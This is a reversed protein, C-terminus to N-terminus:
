DLHVWYMECLQTTNAIWDRLVFTHQIFCQAALSLTKHFCLRVALESNIHHTYTFFWWRFLKLVQHQSIACCFNCFVFGLEAFACGRRFARVLPSQVRGAVWTALVAQTHKYPKKRQPTRLVVCSTRAVALYQVLSNLCVVQVCTCTTSKSCFLLVGGVQRTENAWGACLFVYKFCM